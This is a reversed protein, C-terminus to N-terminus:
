IKKRDLEVIDIQKDEYRNQELTYRLLARNIYKTFKMNRLQADAQLQNYLDIGIYVWLKKRGKREWKSQM